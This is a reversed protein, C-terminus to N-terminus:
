CIPSSNEALSILESENLVAKMYPMSQLVQYTVPEEVQVVEARLKDWVLPHRALHFLVGSLGIAEADRAPLFINLLQNRVEERNNTTAVLEDIIIFRNSTKVHGDAEKQRRVADDIYRDVVTHVRQALKAYTRDWSNFLQM